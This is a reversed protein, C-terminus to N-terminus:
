LAWEIVTKISGAQSVEVELVPLTTKQLYYRSEWGEVLQLRVIPLDTKVTIQITGNSVTNGVIVWSDPMLRWRLVAKNTFGDIQDTVLLADDTLTVARQHMSGKGDRYAAFFNDAQQDVSFRPVGLTKLWDGFLFRSIRPMQDRDDFQVTNHSATGPFYALWKADINYSYSGADRLVNQGNLWFDVHLVDAQSPRFRFRPYRVLVFAKARRLCAYGGDDLLKSGPKKAIEAPLTIGLWQLSLNWEGEGEYARCGAFLVMALQVSPRYDRYDTDSLPLLRAGDNAGINPADGNPQTVFFLWETAAQAKQGFRPSFSPLALDRRWIEAMSLTDLMVRHYNVSYQSFSGDPEILRAVRNELWKRGLASWISGRSDPRQVALWSGGIFLAAAESTGHNNDQAVAYSITPAIRQLHLDILDLLAPCPEAQQNLLRAAMALHMVRISAEQGCKWNPGKYPPNNECWDVLWLELRKIGEPDGTSARQAFTIVWDFRSAEWVCKVDGVDPDFDPIKWWARQPQKVSQGSIPSMHWDPPVSDLHIPFTGFYYVTGWWYDNPVSCNTRPNNLAEFFPGKPMMAHLGHVPNIGFRVSIRYYFVRWINLIGLAFLTEVLITYKRVRTM